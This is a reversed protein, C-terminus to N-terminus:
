RSVNLCRPIIGARYRGAKSARRKQIQKMCIGRCYCHEPLLSIMKGQPTNLLLTGTLTEREKGRATRQRRAKRRMWKTWGKGRRKRGAMLTWRVRAMIMTMAMVMDVGEVVQHELIGWNEDDGDKIMLEDWNVPRVQHFNEPNFQHLRRLASNAGLDDSGNWFDRESTLQVKGWCTTQVEIHDVQDAFACHNDWRSNNM